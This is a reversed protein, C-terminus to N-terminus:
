WFDSVHPILPKYIKRCRGSTLLWMSDRPIQWLRWRESGAIRSKGLPLLYRGTTWAVVNSTMNDMMKAAPLRRGEAFRMPHKRDKKNKKKKSRGRQKRKRQTFKTQRISTFGAVGRPRHFRQCKWFVETSIFCSFFTPFKGLTRYLLDRRHNWQMGLESENLLTVEFVCSNFAINNHNNNVIVLQVRTIEM